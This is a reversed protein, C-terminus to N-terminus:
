QVPPTFSRTRRFICTKMSCLECTYDRYSVSAGTGIVGSVSKIPFMLSSGSLTVGCFGGPFLGFLKHQEGVDWGCYGPSYRNTVKYGNIAAEERVLEHLLHAVSEAMASGILDVIYGELYQGQDILSRSMKEPGPGATAVFFVYSEAGQLMRTIIRGTRFRTGPISIEEDSDNQVAKVAAYGCRPDVMGSCERIFHETIGRAHKDSDQDKEGLLNIISEPPINIQDPDIDLLKHFVPDV